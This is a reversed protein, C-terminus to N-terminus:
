RGRPPAAVGRARPLPSALRLGPSSASADNRGCEFAEAQSPADTAAGGSKTPKLFRAIEAILEPCVLVDRGVLFVPLRGTRVWRRVVPLPTDLRVAAAELTLLGLDQALREQREDHHM